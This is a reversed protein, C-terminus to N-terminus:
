LPVFATGQTFHSFSINRSAELNHAMHGGKDRDIHTSQAQSGEQYSRPAVDGM